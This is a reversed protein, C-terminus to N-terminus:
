LKPSASSVTRSNAIKNKHIQIATPTTNSMKRLLSRDLQPLASHTSKMMMTGYM